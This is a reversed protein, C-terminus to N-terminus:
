WSVWAGTRPPRARKRPKKFAGKLVRQASPHGTFARDLRAHCALLRLLRAFSCDGARSHCGSCAKTPALGQERIVARARKRPLSGRSAFSRRIWQVCEAAPAAEWPSACKCGGVDPPGQDLHSRARARSHGGSGSCANPRLPLRGRPVVANPRLPPRGRPLVNAAEWM